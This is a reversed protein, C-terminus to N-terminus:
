PDLVSDLITRARGSETRPTRCLCDALGKIKLLANLATTRMEKSSILYTHSRRSSTFCSRPHNNKKRRGRMNNLRAPNTGLFFNSVLNWFTKGPSQNSKIESLTRPLCQRRANKAVMIPSNDAASCAKSDAPQRRPVPRTSSGLVGVQLRLPASELGDTRDRHHCRRGCDSSCWFLLQVRATLCSKRVSAVMTPTQYPNQTATGNQLRRALQWTGGVTCTRWNPRTVTKVWSSPPTLPITTLTTRWLSTARVTAFCPRELMCQSRSTTSHTECTRWVNVSRSGLAVIIDTSPTRAKWRTDRLAITCPNISPHPLHHDPEEM